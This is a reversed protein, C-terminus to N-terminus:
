LVGFSKWLNGKGHKNPKLKLDINNTPTFYKKSLFVIFTLFIQLFVRIKYTKKRCDLSVNKPVHSRDFFNYLFIFTM